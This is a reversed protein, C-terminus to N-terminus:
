ESCEWVYKWLFRLIVIPTDQAKDGPKGLSASQNTNITLVFMVSSVAVITLCLFLCSSLLNALLLGYSSVEIVYSNIADSRQESDAQAISRSLPVQWFCARALARWGVGVPDAVCFEECFPM